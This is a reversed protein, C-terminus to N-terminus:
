LPLDAPEHGVVELDNLCARIAEAPSLNLIVAGDTRWHDRDFRFVATGARVNAMMDSASAKPQRVGELVVTVAVFASLEGTSRNRVYSVSDDFDCDAWHRQEPGGRASALQLFKAELWERQRHFGRRARLIRARRSAARAPRWGAAVAVLAVLLVLPFLWWLESM